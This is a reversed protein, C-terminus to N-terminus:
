YNAYNTDDYGIICSDKDNNLCKTNNILNLDKDSDSDNDDDDDDNIQNLKQYLESAEYLYKDSEEKNTDYVAKAKNILNDATIILAVKNEEKTAKNLLKTALTKNGNNLATNTDEKLKSSKMLATIQLNYKQVDNIYQTAKAHDGEAEAKNASLLAIKAQIASNIKINEKNAEYFHVDALETNGDLKAQNGQDNFLQANQMCTNIFETRRPSLPINENENISLFNSSNTNLNSSNTNLKSTNNLILQIILSIIISSILSLQINCSFIFIIYFIIIMQIYFNSLTRKINSSTIALYLIIITFVILVVMRNEHLRKNISNIESLIMNVM